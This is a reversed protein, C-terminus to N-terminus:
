FDTFLLCRYAGVVNIDGKFMFAFKLGGCIRNSKGIVDVMFIIDIGMILIKDGDHVVVNGNVM